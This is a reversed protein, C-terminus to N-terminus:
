VLEPAEVRDRDVTIPVHDESENPLVDFEDIIQVVV